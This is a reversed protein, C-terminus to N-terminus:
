EESFSGGESETPSVLIICAFAILKEVDDEAVTERARENHVHLRAKAVTGEM